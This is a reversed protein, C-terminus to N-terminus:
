RASDPVRQDPVARPRCVGPAGPDRIQRVTEEYIRRATDSDMLQGEIVQGNVTMQFDGVAADEPLPFLFTGEAIQHSENRFVQTVVVEAIPGEIEARVHHEDVTIGNQWAIPPPPVAAM